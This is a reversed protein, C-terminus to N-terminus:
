AWTLGYNHIIVGMPLEIKLKLDRNMPSITDNFYFLTDKAIPEWTTGGDRSIYYTAPIDSSLFTPAGSIMGHKGSPSVDNVNGALPWYGILGSPASPVGQNMINQIETSTLERNWVAVDRIKGNFRYMNSYGWGSIRFNSTATGSSPSGIRTAISQQVGDIYLKNNAASNTGNTFVATVFVWRNALPASAIGVVDSNGTNFGFWGSNFCLGYQNFGIPMQIQTGEWYMWFSVTNKGGAATNVPLGTIGVSDSGGNFQMGFLQEEEVTLVVKSPVADATEITTEVVCSSSDGQIYGVTPDHTYGSSRAVDIGSLDLLDDFIMNYMKYKMSKAVANLKAHAKMINIADNVILKDAQAVVGQIAKELNDIRAKVHPYSGEVGIGLVDNRTYQEQKAAKSAIGYSIIDM